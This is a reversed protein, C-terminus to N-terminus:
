RVLSVVKSVHFSIRTDTKPNTRQNRVTKGHLIGLFGSPSFHSLSLHGWSVVSTLMKLPVDTPSNQFFTKILSFSIQALCRVHLVRATWARAHEYARAHVAGVCRCFVRSLRGTLCIGNLEMCFKQIWHNLVNIAKRSSFDTLYMVLSLRGCTSRRNM